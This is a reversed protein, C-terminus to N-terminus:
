CVEYIEQLVSQELLQDDIVVGLKTVMDKWMVSLRGEVRELHFAHWM